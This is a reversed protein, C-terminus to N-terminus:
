SGADNKSEREAMKEEMARYFSELDGYERWDIGVLRAYMSEPDYDIEYGNGDPGWSVVNYKNIHVGKFYALDDWAKFVGKGKLHSMDLVGEVGDSYKLWIRLGDRPEVAVPVVDLVDVMAISGDVGAASRRISDLDSVSFNDCGIGIPLHKDADRQAIIGGM